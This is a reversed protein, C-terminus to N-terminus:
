EKRPPTLLIFNARLKLSSTIRWLWWLGGGTMKTSFHPTLQVMCQDSISMSSMIKLFGDRVSRVYNNTLISLMSTSEKPPTILCEGKTDTKLSKRTSSKQNKSKRQTNNRVRRKELKTIRRRGISEMTMKTWSHFRVAEVSSSAKWQITEKLSKSSRCM